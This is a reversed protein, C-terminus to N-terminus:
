AHRRGWARFRYPSPRCACKSSERRFWVVGRARRRPAATARGGGSVGDDGAAVIESNRRERPKTWKQPTIGVGMRPRSRAQQESSARPSSAVCSMAVCSLPPHSDFVLAMGSMSVQRPHGWIGGSSGGRSRSPKSELPPIYIYPYLSTPRLPVDSKKPDSIIFAGQRPYSRPLPPTDDEFSAARGRRKGGTGNHSFGYCGKSFYPM